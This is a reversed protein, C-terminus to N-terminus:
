RCFDEPWPGMEPSLLGIDNGHGTVAPWEPTEHSRRRRFPMATRRWISQRAKTVEVDYRGNGVIRCDRLGVTTCKGSIALGSAGNESIESGVCELEATGSLEVGSQEWGHLKCGEMALSAGGECCIGTGGLEGAPGITCNVLIASAGGRLWIGYTITSSIVCDVFELVHGQGWAHVGWGHPNRIALNEFRIRAPVATDVHIAPKLGLAPSTTCPGVIQVNMPAAGLGRLTMSAERSVIFGGYAGPSLDIVAGKRGNAVRRQLPQLSMRSERAAPEM